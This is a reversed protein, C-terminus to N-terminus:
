YIFELKGDLCYFNWSETKHQFHEDLISQIKDGEETEHDFFGAGHGSTSLFLEYATDRECKDLYDSLDDDERIKEAMAELTTFVYLLNWDKVNELTFLGEDFEGGENERFTKRDYEQDVQDLSLKFELLTAIWAKQCPELTKM